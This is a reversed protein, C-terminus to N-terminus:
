TTFVLLNATAITVSSRGSTPTRASILVLITRVRSVRQAGKTNVVIPVQWPLRALRDQVVM